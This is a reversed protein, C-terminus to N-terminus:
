GDTRLTMTRNRVEYSSLKDLFNLGLLNASLADPQSVLVRLDRVAIPGVDLLDVTASAAFTLGNATSVPVTYSIDGVPIGALAATEHTLTTHTAGTDIMFDVPQGDLLATLGYHGNASRRIRVDGGDSVITGSPLLEVGVRQVVATLEGRYSYVGILAAGIALWVVASTMADGLRGRYLRSVGFGIVALLAVWRALDAISGAEPAAVFGFWQAAALGGAVVALFVAGAMMM